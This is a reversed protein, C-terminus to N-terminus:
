ISCVKTTPCVGEGIPYKTKDIPEEHNVLVKRKYTSGHSDKVVVVLDHINPNKM